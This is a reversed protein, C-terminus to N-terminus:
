VGTSVLVVAVSCNTTLATTSDPVIHSEQIVMQNDSSVRTKPFSTVMAEEQKQNKKVCDDLIKNAIWKLM